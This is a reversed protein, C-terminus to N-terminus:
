PVVIIDGTRLAINTAGGDKVAADYDFRIRQQAQPTERLIVIRRRAAFDTFGQAMAIVDLVTTNSKLEYRGPARVNGLISVKFSHIERVIVSVNPDRVFAAYKARLIDRLEMPALGAATVDNILPLSIKGDPRVPVVKQLQDDGRVSIDLVDEVGIRYSGANADHTADDDARATLPVLILLVSFLALSAKM